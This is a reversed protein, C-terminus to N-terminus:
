THRERRDGTRDEETAINTTTIKTVRVHNIIALSHQWQSNIAMCVTHSKMSPQPLPLPFVTANNITFIDGCAIASPM